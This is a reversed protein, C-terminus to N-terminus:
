AVGTSGFGGAGRETPSLEDVEVPEWREVQQVVLQCIRDGAKIEPPTPAHCILMAKLPGRYDSDIVGVSNRLTVAHKTGLGSRIYCYAVFGPPIELAFGFDVTAICPEETAYGPHPFELGNPEQIMWQVDEVTRMDIGAAFPTSRSPLPLTHNGLRKFKIM